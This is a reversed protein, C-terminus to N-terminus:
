ARCGAPDAVGGGELRALVPSWPRERRPFSRLHRLRASPLASASRNPGEAECCKSELNGAGVDRGDGDLASTVLGCTATNSQGTENRVHPRQRDARRREIRDDGAVVGERVQQGFVLNVLGQLFAEPTEPWISATDDRHPVVFNRRRWSRDLGPVVTVTGPGPTIAAKGLNPTPVTGEVVHSKFEHRVVVRLLDDGPSRGRSVEGDSRISHRHEHLLRPECPNAADLAAEKLGDQHACPLPVGRPAGCM